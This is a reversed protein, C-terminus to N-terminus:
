RSVLIEGDQSGAFVFQESVAIALISKNHRVRHFLSPAPKVADKPSQDPDKLAQLGAQVHRNAATLTPDEIEPSVEDSM